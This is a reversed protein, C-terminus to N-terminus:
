LRAYMRRDNPDRSNEFLKKFLAVRGLRFPDLVLIFVEFPTIKEVDDYFPIKVVPLFMNNKYFNACNESHTISIAVPLKLDLREYDKFNVKARSNVPGKANALGQAARDIKKVAMLDKTSRANSLLRYTQCRQTLSPQSLSTRCSHQWRTVDKQESRLVPKEPLLCSNQSIKAQYFRKQDKLWLRFIIKMLDLSIRSSIGRDTYDLHVAAFLGNGVPTGGAKVRKCIHENEWAEYRKLREFGTKSIDELKHKEYADWYPRDDSIAWGNSEWAPPILLMGGVLKTEEKRQQNEDCKDDSEDDTVWLGIISGVGRAVTVEYNANFYAQLFESRKSGDPVMYKYLPYDHFSNIFINRVIAWDEDTNVLDVKVVKVMTSRKENESLM